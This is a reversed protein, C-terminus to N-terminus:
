NLESLYKLALQYTAKHAEDGKGMERKIIFEAVEKGEIGKIVYVLLPLKRKANPVVDARNGDIRVKAMAELAANTGPKGINILASVCPHHTVASIADSSAYPDEFAVESM